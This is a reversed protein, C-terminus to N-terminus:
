EEEAVDFLRMFQLFALQGGEIQIEGNLYAPLPKRIKSALEKWVTETVRITIDPVAAAFPQVEAVGRRVQVTWKAGTDTFYFLATQETNISKQPNLHAALGNFIYQMPINRVLQPTPKILGNNKLGQLELASTLYYHRANPNTQATGLATLAQIRHAIAQPNNPYLALYYDTLELLWQYAEEAAAKNMQAELQQKGGALQQIKQAREKVSLPLLTAPNGNFFGMYGDFVSRVSWETKGYFEKLWESQQLHQPLIVTEALEDPTMGKNMGRVTQDHVFQIADRYDTLIKFVNEAGLVPETHSPVLADPHLYRMKDLSNKWLNIDRYATGRITYLNPFTKYLNDGCLLTKTQPLWVFLQDPTEGPAHYLAMEIGAITVALSDKFTITPRLVGLETDKDIVLKPGIGCNVLANSDLFVGFMRYARKETIDRVVAFTQDLCAPLLEQAYVDPNDNGALAVAGSTHDTHFHTYIIAKVPKPCIKTFADKVEQGSKMSEMCDVIIVSDKGEILISNALGYGIAVYVNSGVKQIRKEFDLNRLLLEEPPPTTKQQEPPTKRCSYGLLLPLAIVAFLLCCKKLTHM